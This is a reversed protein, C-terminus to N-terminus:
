LHVTITADTPSHIHSKHGTNGAGGPDFRPPGHPRQQARKAPRGAESHTAASEEARQRTRKGTVIACVVAGTDDADDAGHVRAM